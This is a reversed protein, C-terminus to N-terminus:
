HRGHGGARVMMWIMMGMMLACGLPAIFAFVGVGAAVLVITIALLGACIAMHWPKM